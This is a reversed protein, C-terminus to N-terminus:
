RMVWCFKIVMCYPEIFSGTSARLVLWNIHSKAIHLAPLLFVSCTVVIFVVMFCQSFFIFRNSCLFLSCCCCCCFPWLTPLLQRITCSFVQFNKLLFPQSCTCKLSILQRSNFINCFDCWVTSFGLQQFNLNCLSFFVVEVNKVM